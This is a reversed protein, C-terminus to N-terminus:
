PLGWSEVVSLGERSTVVSTVPWLGLFANVSLDSKQRKEVHFNELYFKIMKKQAPSEVLAFYSFVRM